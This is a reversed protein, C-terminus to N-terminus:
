APRAATVLWAASGYAVGEGTHHAETSRHLRELARSRGEADHRELMWGLLGVLFTAAEEPEAGFVMPERVDEIRADVFGARELVDRLRVPDGLSFPGPVGPPPPPPPMGLLASAIDVIWENRQAEQWVLLVVRGGPRLAEGVHRLGAVVDDFFMAGTRSLAVDFPESPWAALQADAQRFEVNSLGAVGARERAVDVMAGSLDVGLVWGRPCRRAAERTTSGTGCGVDLVRDDVALRAAALFAPDYAAVSREFRDANAAWYAGEAGDWSALQEASAAAIAGQVPM